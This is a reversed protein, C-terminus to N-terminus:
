KNLYNGFSPPLAFGPTYQYIQYDIGNRGRIIGGAFDGKHHTHNYSLRGNLRNVEAPTMHSLANHGMDYTRHKKSNHEEIKQDNYDFNLFRSEELDDNNFSIKHSQKFKQWKASKKHKFAGLVVSASVLVVLL